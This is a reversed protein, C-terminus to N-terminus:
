DIVPSEVIVRWNKVEFDGNPNTSRLTTTFNYSGEPTAEPVKLRIVFALDDSYSVRRSSNSETVSSVRFVSTVSEIEIIWNEPLNRPTLTFDRTPVSLRFITGPSSRFAEEPIQGPDYNFFDDSYLGRAYWTGEGSITLM